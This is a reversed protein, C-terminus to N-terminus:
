SDPYVQRRPNSWASIATRELQKKNKLSMIRPTPNEVGFDSDEGVKVFLHTFFCLIHWNKFKQGVNLWFLLFAVRLSTKDNKKHFFAGWLKM